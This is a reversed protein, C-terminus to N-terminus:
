LMFRRFISLILFLFYKLNHGTVLRIYVGASNERSYRLTKKTRRKIDYTPQHGERMFHKSDRDNYILFGLAFYPKRIVGLSDSLANSLYLRKFIAAPRWRSNSGVPFPATPDATGSFGVWFWVHFPSRNVRQLTIAM